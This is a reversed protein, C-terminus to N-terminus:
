EWEQLDDFMEDHSKVNFPQGIFLNPEYWDGTTKNQTRNLEHEVVWNPKFAHVLATIKALDFPKPNLVRFGKRKSQKPSMLVTKGHETLGALYNMMAIFNKKM